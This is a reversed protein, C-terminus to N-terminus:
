HPQAQKSTLEHDATSRSLGEKVFANLTAEVTGKWVAGRKSSEGFYVNVREGNKTSQPVCIRRVEDHGNVNFDDFGNEKSVLELSAPKGNIEIARTNGVQMTAHADQRQNMLKKMM